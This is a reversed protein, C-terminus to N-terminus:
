GIIINIMANKRNPENDSNEYMRIITIFSVNLIQDVLRLM